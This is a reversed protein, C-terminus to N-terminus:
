EMFCNWDVAYLFCRLLDNFPWSDAQEVFWGFGKEEWLNIIPCIQGRDVGFFLLNVSFTIVCNNM